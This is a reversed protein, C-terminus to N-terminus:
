RSRTSARAGSELRRLGDVTLTGDKAVLPVDTADRWRVFESAFFQPNKIAPGDPGAYFAAVRLVEQLGYKSVLPQFLAGVRGHAITGIHEVWWTTIENVWSAGGTLAVYASEIEQLREPPYQERLLAMLSEIFTRLSASLQATAV